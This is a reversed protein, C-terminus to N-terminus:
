SAAERRRSLYQELSEGSAREQRKVTKPKEGSRVELRGITVQIIPEPPSPLPITAQARKGPVPSPPLDPEVVAGARPFFQPFSVLSQSVRKLRVRASPRTAEARRVPAPDESAPALLPAVAVPEHGEVTEQRPALPLAIAARPSFEEPNSDVVPRAFEQGLYVAPEVTSKFASPIEREEALHPELTRLPAEPSPSPIEFAEEGVGGFWSGAPLGPSPTAARALLRDFLTNPAREM